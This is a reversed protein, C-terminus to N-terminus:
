QLTPNTPAASSSYPTDAQNLIDILMTLNLSSPKKWMQDIIDLVGKRNGRVLEGRKPRSAWEEVLSTTLLTKLAKRINDHIPKPLPPPTPKGSSTTVTEQEKPLIEVIFPLEFQRLNLDQGDHQERYAVKAHRDAAENGISQPDRLGTHSRVHTLRTPTGMTERANLASAIARMYPRAVCAMPGSRGGTQRYTHIKQISSLSDTYLKIPITVPVSRIAKNIAALEATYSMRTDVSWRQHRNEYENQLFDEDLYM